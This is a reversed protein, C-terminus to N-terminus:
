IEMGVISMSSIRAPRARSLPQLRGLLLSSLQMSSNSTKKKRTCMHSCSRSLIPYNCFLDISNFCSKILAGCLVACCGCHCCVRASCLAKWVTIIPNPINTNSAWENPRDRARALAAAYSYVINAPTFCLSERHNSEQGLRLSRSLSLSIFINNFLDARMNVCNGNAANSSAARRRDCKRMM